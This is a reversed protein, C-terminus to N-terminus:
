PDVLTVTYRVTSDPAIGLVTASSTGSPEPELALAYVTGDDGVAVSWFESGTRRLGVPWGERVRGDRGLALLSGGASEDEAALPVFLMGDPGAAPKVLTSCSIGEEGAFPDAGEISTTPAVPWGPLVRLSPDLAYIAPDLESVVFTTGDAALIPAIPVSVVCDVGSTVSPMALTESTAATPEPAPNLGLVRTTPEEFSGLTMAIRGDMHVSAASAIGWQFTIPWGPRTGDLAVAIVTSQEPRGEGAEGGPQVGFAASSPGVTWAEGCCSEVIPTSEGLTLGGDMAVVVLLVEHSPEGITVTDSIGRLTLLALADGDIGGALMQPVQVPWGALRRGEADFAFARQDNPGLETVPLDTADCVVRVSGDAVPLLVPCSTTNPLTVPWGPVSRGAADLMSVVAGGERPIAVFLSGAPGPAIRIQLGIASATRRVPLLPM